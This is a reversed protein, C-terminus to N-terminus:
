SICPSYTTRKRYSNQAVHELRGDALFDAIWKSTTSTSFHLRQSIEAYQQKDFEDPLAAYLMNMKERKSLIKGESSRAATTHPLHAYCYATHFILTEGMEMATRFDVELCRLVIFGNIRETDPFCSKDEMYRVSTLVTMIRFVILALRRVVGQMDHSIDEVIEANISRFRENFEDCMHQPVNIFYRGDRLFVDRMQKYRMGLEHYRQRLSGKYGVQKFDREVLVDRFDVKFPIHYCIIRSFTGNEATPTLALLQDPTGSICLAIMPHEIVRREDDKRRAIDITEQHFGKRLIISYDGYDSKLVSTLTDCETDFFLGIGGNYDLQEIVAAASSNTPIFLTRRHPESEPLSSDDKDAQKQLMRYERIEEESTEYLEKHIPVVLERCYNLSGKGMGADAMVFFFLMPCINEGDYEGVVNHLTASLCTIAGMLMMDRDDISKCNAIIESFFPCLNDYVFQPFHPLNEEDRIWKQEEVGLQIKPNKSKQIELSSDAAIDNGTKEANRSGFTWFDLSGNEENQIKETNNWMSSKDRKLNSIDIGADKAMQFFTGITIGEGKSSLCNNYQKDAEHYDYKPNQRSVRHFFDRGGEGFESAFAFGIRLWVDYGATIDIGRQEILQVIREVKDRTAEGDTNNYQPATQQMGDKVTATTPLTDKSPVNAWQEPLFTKM